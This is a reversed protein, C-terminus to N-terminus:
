RVSEMAMDPSFAQVAWAHEAPAPSNCALAAAVVETTVRVRAFPTASCV